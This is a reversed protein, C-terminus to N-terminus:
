GGGNGCQSGGNCDTAVVPGGGAFLTRTIHLPSLALLALLSALLFSRVLNQRVRIM